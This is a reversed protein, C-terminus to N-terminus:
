RSTAKTGGKTPQLPVKRLRQVPFPVGGVDLHETVIMHPQPVPDIIWDGPLNNIPRTSRHSKPLRVVRGEGQGVDRLDYLVFHSFVRRLAAQAAAIEAAGGIESAVAARLSSLMKLTEQEADALDAEAIVQNEEGVLDDIAATAARLDREPTETLKRRESATIEGDLYDTNVRELQEEARQRVREANARHARLNSLRQTRGRAHEHVMADVDLGVNRFYQLVASDIWERRVASQDCESAGSYRGSCIYVDYWGYSKRDRKVRMAQGCRSCRLLGNGLLFVRSPRARRGSSCLLQEAQEYLEVPVLPSHTDFLVWEGDIKRRTKGAYIPDRLRHSVQSQVWRKGQATRCGDANLDAAIRTQTKGSVFERFIREVVAIEEPVATLAGDKQTFGFRRPGGNLRGRRAATAMGARVRESTLNSEFEALGSFLTTQLKGVATTTDVEGRLSRFAVGAEELTALIDLIDRTNRGLRDLSPVIVVDFEGAQAAAMMDYLASRPETSRGSLGRDVYNRVWTEGHGSTDDRMAQEQTELSFGHQAQETTSVRCYGVARKNRNDHM